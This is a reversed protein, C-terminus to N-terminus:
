ESDGAARVVQDAFATIARASKAPERQFLLHPGDIAVARIDPRIAQMEEGCAASVLRDTSPQLYLIPVSVRRLEDRVDCTLLERARQVLVQSRATAISAKVARVLTQPADAGVLWRRVAFDPASIRFLIPAFWRVALRRSGRVPSSAFGACLVVGKLNPPNTAAYQIALPTSFSEAVLLFPGAAQAHHRVLEVLDSHGLYTDGPYRVTITELRAPLARILDQFLQGSGDMGPLLVLKTM